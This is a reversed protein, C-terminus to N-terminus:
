TVKWLYEFINKMATAIKENEIIVGCPKAKDYATIALKNEYINVEVGLDEFFGKALKAERMYNKAKRVEQNGEKSQTMIDKVKVGHAMRAPMYEKYFFDGMTAVAAKVDTIAYIIKNKNDRWTDSYMAKVGDFGEFYKIKSVLSPTQKSAKAKNVWEELQEAQDTVEQKKNKLWEKFLGLEIPEYITIDNQVASSVLGKEILHQLIPYVSTRNLVTEKALRSVACQKTQYLCALVRKEKTTLLENMVANYAQQLVTDVSQCNNIPHIIIQRCPETSPPVYASVVALDLFNPSVELRNGL